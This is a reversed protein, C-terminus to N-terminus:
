VLTGCFSLFFYPEVFFPDRVHACLLVINFHRGQVSMENIPWVMKKYEGYSEMRRLICRILSSHFSIWSTM